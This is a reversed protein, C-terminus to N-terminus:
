KNRWRETGTKKRLREVRRQRCLQGAGRGERTQLMRNEPERDWVEERHGETRGGAKRKGKRGRDQQRQASLRTAM